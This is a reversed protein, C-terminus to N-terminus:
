EDKEGEWEKWECECDNEARERYEDASRTWYSMYQDEDWDNDFDNM